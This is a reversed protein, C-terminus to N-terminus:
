KAIYITKSYQDIHRKLENNELAEYHVIDIHYPIPLRENLEALADELVDFTINDGYIVIDIDSGKKYNGMSRSGFISAKEIEKHKAFVDTIMKITKESIGFNM